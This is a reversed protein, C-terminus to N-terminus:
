CGSCYLPLELKFPTLAQAHACAFNTLHVVKTSDGKHRENSTTLHWQVPNGPDWSYLNLPDAHIISASSPRLSCTAYMARCCLDLIIHMRCPVECVLGEGGGDAAAVSSSRPSVLLARWRLRFSGSTTSSRVILICFRMTPLLM